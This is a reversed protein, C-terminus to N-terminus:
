AECKARSCKVDIVYESYFYFDCRFAVSRMELRSERMVLFSIVNFRVYNPHKPGYFLDLSNGGRWNDKQTCVFAFVFALLLFKRLCSVTTTHSVGMEKCPIWAYLLFSHASCVCRIHFVLIIAIVISTDCIREECYYDMRRTLTPHTHTRRVYLRITVHTYKNCNRMCVSVNKFIMARRSLYQVFFYLSLVLSFRCTPFSECVWVCLDVRVLRIYENNNYQSRTFREM